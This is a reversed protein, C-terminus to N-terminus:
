EGGGVYILQIRAGNDASRWRYGGLTLNQAKVSASPGDLTLLAQGNVEFREQTNTIVVQTDTTSSGTTKHALTLTPTEGDTSFTMWANVSGITSSYTTVTKDLEGLQTKNAAIDTSNQKVSTDLTTVSSEVNKVNTNLKNFLSTNDYPAPSWDTPRNGRELKVEKVLITSDTGSTTSGNNDFRVVCSECVTADSSSTFTWYKRTETATLTEKYKSFVITQTNEMNGLVFIDVGSPAVKSDSSDYSISASLTYVTSPELTFTPSFIYNETTTSNTRSFTHTSTDYDVATSEAYTTLWGSGTSTGELMNTGGVGVNNIANYLVPDSTQTTTKGLPDAITTVSRQWIYMGYSAEPVEDQWSGGTPTTESTSLYYEMKISEVSDGNTEAQTTCWATPTDGLEVKLGCVQLTDGVAVNYHYVYGISAVKSEVPTYTYSLYTWTDASVAYLGFYDPTVSEVGNYWLIQMRVKAAVSSKVWCSITYPQGVIVPGYNGQCFGALSGAKTSTITVVDSDPEPCSSDKGHILTADQSVRISASEWTGGSLATFNATGRMINWQTAPGIDGKDGKEGTDGKAGPDGKDGTDGKIKSWTYKTPDTSDDENTDTYQGMYSKGTPDSVDFDVTGDESNAYAIHVYTTAGDKGPTGEGKAGTNGTIVVPDTTETDGTGYTITQRMWIYTGETFAPADTSWGETPATEHSDSQAYEVVTSVVAKEAAEKAETAATKAEGATTNANEATTKADDAIDKVSEATTKATAADDKAESADKAADKVSQDLAAVSDLSKNISGNLSKLYASQQGTLSDYDAGLEYETNSPDQMDLTISNVMLYEDINHFASRVRVAQGVKLHSYGDMYLALDVAKVTVSLTPSLLNNLAKIAATLLGDQTECDTNSYAYERYGYRSVGNVSYVVDGSKYIGPDTTGGDPLSEITIPEPDETAGEEKEPTAGQPRVATYQSSTDVTKSFDTINVGFDIIQANKDHVDAYWNITLPDYDVFVYGGLSDILKNTIESWTEPISTSSRYIYDNTDLAAGQNVGVQFQKHSDKVHENHQTIYWQFLGEPSSPATLDEEGAITSYRRVVTDSLWTLAGNCSVSKDGELETEISEIEGLFLLEKDWYLYVFGSKEAITDYLTHTYSITFDLYDPNNSKATLKVDTVVDDTYPDFLTASGYLLRYAM